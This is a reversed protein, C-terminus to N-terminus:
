MHSVKSFADQCSPLRPVSKFAEACGTDSIGGAGFESPELGTLSHSNSMDYSHACDARVVAEVPEFLKPQCLALVHQVIQGIWLEISLGYDMGPLMSQKSTRPKSLKCTCSPLRFGADSRTQLLHDFGSPLRCFSLRPMRSVIRFSNAHRGFGETSHYQMNSGTASAHRGQDVRRATYFRVFM